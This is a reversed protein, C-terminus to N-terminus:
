SSILKIDSPEMNIMTGHSSNTSNDNITPYTDGDGMRWWACLNAAMSLDLLHTPDGGNYIESVEDSNLLKNWISIEDLEGQYFRNTVQKGIKVTTAPLLISSDLGNIQITRSALAGDVYFNIGNGSQNGNYTTVLHHWTGDSVEGNCKCAIKTGNSGILRLAVKGAGYDFNLMWGAGDVYNTSTTKAIITAEVTEISNKLLLSISFSDTGEFGLESAVGCDIYEDIGDFQISKASYLSQMALPDILGLNGAIRDRRSAYM